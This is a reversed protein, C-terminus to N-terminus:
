NILLGVKIFLYNSPFILMVASGCIRLRFNGHPASIKDVPFDVFPANIKLCDRREKTRKFFM